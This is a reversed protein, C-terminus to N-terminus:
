VSLMDIIISILPLLFSVCVSHLNFFFTYTITYSGDISGKYISSHNGSPDINIIFTGTSYYMLTQYLCKHYSLLFFTAFVDVLDSKTDIGQKRLRALCLQFPKWLWRLLRYNRGHLEVFLWTLFILFIPYFASIYGFLMVHYFKLKSSICFPPLVNLFFDLNFMAYLLYAINLDLIRLHGDKTEYISVLQGIPHLGEFGFHCLQALMIFCPMPPASLRIQFAVVVFYLVTVPIFEILM